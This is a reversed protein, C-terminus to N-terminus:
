DVEEKNPKAKTNLDIRHSKETEHICGLSEINCGSREIDGQVSRGPLEIGEM